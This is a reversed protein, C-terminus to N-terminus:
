DSLDPIVCVPLDWRRCILLKETDSLNETWKISSLWLRQKKSLKCDECAIAMARQTPANLTKLSYFSNLVEILDQAQKYNKQAMADWFLVRTTIEAPLKENWAAQKLLAYWPISDRTSDLPYFRLVEQMDLLLDEWERSSLLPQSHAPPIAEPASSNQSSQSISDSLNQLISHLAKERYTIESPTELYKFYNTKCNNFEDPTLHEQWWIGAPHLMAPLDSEEGLFRSAEARHDVVPHFDSNASIDAFLPRLLKTHTLYNQPGFYHCPRKIKTFEQNIEPTTCLRDLHKQSVPGQSALIIVDPEGPVQYLAVHAFQEDLAKLIHLFLPTGFEYLQLWQVLLGEDSLFRQIHHYFETSFLGSVGSVWPNSPVSVIMDYKQQNTHFFTRADDIIYRVRPDEWAKQNDPMFGRALNLMEEEIEVVDLHTLLPDSLLYEVTMGSGFGVVAASYPANKMTMPVFATAAQTRQDDALPDRRNKLISADTKGNTKIYKQLENEHFSITATRGSRVIITEDQHAELKQHARFVGSTILNSDYDMLFAPFVALVLMGPILRSRRLKPKYYYLLAVGTLIDAIAATALTWKLQLVPLIVLGALAAGAISGITNWGYVHGTYKEKGTRSALFYTILPLTMGAFFSTPAMWLICLLYRFLTWAVYGAQTEAFLVNSANMWHFFPAYLYVTLMAAVGMAMQAIGLLVPLNQHSRLIRHITWAGGAMGLIFASLMLDFSHTSAGMMLSLMRMWDIEYIFSTFGTGFAILLWVFIERSGIRHSIENNKAQHAGKAVESFPAPDYSDIAPPTEERGLTRLIIVAAIVLNLAGAINMAGQTGWVLILVYSALLAGAAAGLSNSFYLFPLSNRGSDKEDRILANAMFPFTMGLLIASPLTMALSLLIKVFTIQSFSMDATWASEYFWHSVGIFVPHYLFAALAIAIEVAAYALFLNKRKASLKGALFSGIGLGGMFICLTMIQGYSSHGLFMKLYRSWTSQYILGTIGSFFFLFYIIRNM